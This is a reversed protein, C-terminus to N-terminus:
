RRHLDIIVVYEQLKGQHPPLDSQEVGKQILEHLEGSIPGRTKAVAQRTRMRSHEQQENRCDVHSRCKSRM